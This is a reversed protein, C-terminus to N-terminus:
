KKVTSTSNELQSKSIPKPNMLCEAETVTQFSLDSHQPITKCVFFGKFEVAKVGAYVKGMKDAIFVVSKYQNEGNRMARAEPFYLRKGDKKVLLLGHLEPISPSNICAVVFLVVVLALIGAAVFKKM